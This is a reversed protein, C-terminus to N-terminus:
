KNFLKGLLSKGMNMVDDKIDGDGNQDLMSIISNSGGSKGGLLGGLIGDLGSPSDVNNEQTKKGLYGMLIPAAMKLIQSVKDSSVGTKESVANEVLGQKEGLIHGLIGNGDTDDQSDGGLFGSLNDLISGDHKGKLASLLSEAGGPSAVNNKMAGMLAPLASTLVSSTEQPDTGAKQSVGDIIQKGLDSNVLDLIGAM